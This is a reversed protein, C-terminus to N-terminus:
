MGFPKLIDQLNSRRVPEWRFSNAVEEYFEQVIMTIVKEDNLETLSTDRMFHITSLPSKLDFAREFLSDTSSALKMWSEGDIFVDINIIGLYNLKEYLKQAFLLSQKFQVLLQDLVITETSSGIDYYLVNQKFSFMGYQNLAFFNIRERNKDAFYIHTGRQFTNYQFNLDRFPFYNSTGYADKFKISELIDMSDKVAFLEQTPYKPSIVINIKEKTNEEGAIRPTPISTFSNMLGSSKNRNYEYESEYDYADFLDDLLERHLKYTELAKERKQRLYEWEDASALREWEASSTRDALRICLKNENFLWHPANNSEQVYLIVFTKNNKDPDCVHVIPLAPPSISDIVLNTVRLSLQKDWGIGEAPLKPKDDGDDDVGIIVWGGLTNAMAAITKAIKKPSSFDKKYDLNIGEKNQKQCFAKVDDVEIDNLKKGFINFELINTNM